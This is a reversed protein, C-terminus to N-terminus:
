KPTEQHETQQPLFNEALERLWQESWDLRGERLDAIVGGLWDLEARLM